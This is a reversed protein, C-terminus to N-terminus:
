KAERADEPALQEPKLQAWHWPEYVFGFPNDRGYPMYFEFRAANVCLWEFAESSEFEETLPRFGPTAVDVAKGTHHQSFGPAANVRLIQEIPQGAALKSRFLEAQYRISRFGSVLLLEIGDRRAALKMRRWARATAPALRQMRGIINPEVETLQAAEAYDPLRPDTGYASPIGLDALLKRDIMAGQSIATGGSGATYWRPVAAGRTIARM